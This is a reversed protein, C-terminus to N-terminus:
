REHKRKLLSFKVNKTLKKKRIVFHLLNKIKHIQEM